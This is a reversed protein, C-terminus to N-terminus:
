GELELTAGGTTGMLVALTLEDTAAEGILALLVALALEETTAGVDLMTEEATGVVALVLEDELTAPFTKPLLLLAAMIDLVGLAAEVGVELTALALGELATEVALRFALELAVETAELAGGETAELMLALELAGETAELMLALELAGETAELTLVLELAGETAGLTLALEAFGLEAGAAKLGGETAGLMLALEAFGLEEGAAELIAVEGTNFAM